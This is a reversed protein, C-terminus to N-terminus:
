PWRAISLGQPCNAATLTWRVAQCRTVMKNSWSQCRVMQRITSQTNPQKKRVRDIKPRRFVNVSIKDTREEGDNSKVAGKAKNPPLIGQDLFSQLKSIATAEPRYNNNVIKHGPEDPVKFPPNPELGGTFRRYEEVNRYWLGTDTDYVEGDAEGRIDPTPKPGVKDDVPEWKNAKWEWGKKQIVAGLYNGVARNGHARQMDLVKRQIPSLQTSASRSGASRTNNPSRDSGSRGKHSYSM